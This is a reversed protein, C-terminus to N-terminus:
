MERHAVASQLRLFPKFSSPFFKFLAGAHLAAHHRRVVPAPIFHFNPFLVRFFMFFRALMFHLMVGASWLDAAAGYNKQLVEPAM